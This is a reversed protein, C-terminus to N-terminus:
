ITKSTIQKWIKTSYVRTEQCWLHISCIVGSQHRSWTHTLHSVSVLTELHDGSTLGHRTINHHSGCSEQMIEETESVGLYNDWNGWLSRVCDSGCTFTLMLKKCGVVNDETVSCWWSSSSGPHTGPNGSEKHSNSNACYLHPRCLIDSSFGTQAFSVFQTQCTPSM